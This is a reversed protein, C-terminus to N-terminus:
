TACIWIVHPARRSGQAAALQLHNQSSAANLVSLHTTGPLVLINAHWRDALKLCVADKGACRDHEARTIAARV